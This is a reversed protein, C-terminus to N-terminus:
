LTMGKLQLILTCNEFAFFKWNEYELLSAFFKFKLRYQNIQLQFELSSLWLAFGWVHLSKVLVKMVRRVVNRYELFLICTPICLRMILLTQCLISPYIINMYLIKCSLPFTRFGYNVHREKSIFVDRCNTSRICPFALPIGVCLVDPSSTHASKVLSRPDKVVEKIIWLKM